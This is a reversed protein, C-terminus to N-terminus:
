SSREAGSDREAKEESAAMAALSARAISIWRTTLGFPMSAQSTWSSATGSIAM